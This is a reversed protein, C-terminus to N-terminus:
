NKALTHFSKLDNISFYFRLINLTVVESLSLNKNFGRKNKWGALYMKNGTGSCIYLKLFNDVFAFLETIYNLMDFAGKAQKKPKLFM